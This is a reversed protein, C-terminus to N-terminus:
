KLCKDLRTSQTDIIYKLHNNLQLSCIYIPNYTAVLNKFFLAFCHIESKTGSPTVRKELISVENKNCYAESDILKFYKIYIRPKPSKMMHASGPSSNV